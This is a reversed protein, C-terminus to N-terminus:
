TSFIFWKNQVGKRPAWLKIQLIEQLMVLFKCLFRPAEMQSHAGLFLRPAWANIQETTHSDLLFDHLEPRLGHEYISKPYIEHLKIGLGVIGRLEQDTRFFDTSSQSWFLLGRM